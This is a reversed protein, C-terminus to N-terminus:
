INHYNKQRKLSHTYMTLASTLLSTGSMMCAQFRNSKLQAKISNKHEVQELRDKLAKTVENIDSFVIKQKDQQHAHSEPSHSYPSTRNCTCLYPKNAPDRDVVVLLMVLHLHTHKLERRINCYTPKVFQPQELTISCLM